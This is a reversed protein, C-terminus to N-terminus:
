FSLNVGLVQIVHRSNNKSDKFSNAIINLLDQIFIFHFINSEFLSKKIKFLLLAYFLVHKMLLHLVKSEFLSKKIKFLLLAYFLVHKM